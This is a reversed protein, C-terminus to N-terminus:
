MLRQDAVLSWKAQSHRPSRAKLAAVKRTHFLRGASM